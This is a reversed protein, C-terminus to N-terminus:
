RPPEPRPPTPFPTPEAEAATTSVATTMPRTGTGSGSGSPPPLLTLGGALLLALCGLVVELRINRRLQRVPRAEIDTGGRDEASRAVLRPSLRRFNVAGVIVLVLFVAVKLSLVQGWLSNFFAVPDTTHILLNYTGTAALTVVSIIALRSFRPIAQGLFARREVSSMGAAKFAPFLALAMYGLSGVWVSVIVLHLWDSVIPLPVGFASNDGAVAAHSGISQALMLLSAAAVALEWAGSGGRTSRRWIFLMVGLLLLAALAKLAWSFGFRTSNIILLATDPRGLAGLMDTRDVAAVQLVLDLLLAIALFIAAITGILGFRRGVVPWVSKGAEGTRAVTPEVVMMTFVPGGLLLISGVFMVARVLWRFPDASSTDTEYPSASTDDLPVVPEEAGTDGPGPTAGAAARVRFAFNGAILHGDANSLVRWVVTYIGPPLTNLVAVKASTDADIRALPGVPQEQRARDYIKITSFELSVAETMYLEIEAPSTDVTSGAEPSSKVLQPHASAPKPSYLWPLVLLLTVALLSWRRVGTAISNRGNHSHHM